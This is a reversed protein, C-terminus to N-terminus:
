KEVRSMHSLGEVLEPISRFVMLLGYLAVGHHMSIGHDVKDFEAIMESVSTYILILGVVLNVYPSETIAKLYKM